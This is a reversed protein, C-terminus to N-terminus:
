FKSFTTDHPMESGVFDKVWGDAVQKLFYKELADASYGFSKFTTFKNKGDVDKNYVYRLLSTKKSVMKNLITKDLSPKLSNITLSLNLVNCLGIIQQISGISIITGDEDRKFTGGLNVKFTMDPKKDTSYSVEIALDSAPYKEGFLKKGSIDKVDTIIIDNIFYNKSTFEQSEKTTFEM